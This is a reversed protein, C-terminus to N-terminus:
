FKATASIFYTRGNEKFNSETKPQSDFINNVGVRASFNDNFDYKAAVDMVFYPSVNQAILTEPTLVYDVQKGYYSLTTNLNLKDTAQWAINSHISYEPDASLPMGTELNRSEFLYTFSNTWTVDAHVPITLFGEVGQSRAKDVNIQQVYKTGADTILSAVRASTIKDDIVNYFYTLGGQWAGDDYVFGAEFSNSTEPKLNPNGVMECPGGVAGCGRSRSTTVWNPNLQRLNPAKFAQAWGAKFTLSDTLDYNLYAKPSFHSGFKEHYDYRLGGTVKLRDTFQIQDEAFLAATTVSTKASGYVGTVSNYKGLNAPDNLEEHRIEGGLTLDQQWLFDIPMAIKGDLAYTRSTIGDGIVTTGDLIDYENKSDEIFATVTSTGIDWEGVHRLSATTRKITRDPEAEFEEYRQQGIGLDLDFVHNANPTWTLRGNLDFDESGRPTELGNSLAPNDAHKKAINGFATFTLVDPILPGSVYGNLRQTKGTAKSEPFLFETTVSGSWTNGGKKTIINIVGGLADSGYLTSMPGRVVEIREIADLPVWNLDGNYKRLMTSGTNIRKGDILILSYGSGLGRMSIGRTGNSGFGVNVGPVSRIAESLDAVAKQELTSRDVVSVSAPASRVDTAISSATVVLTQLQTVEAETAADGDQAMVASGTAGALCTSM